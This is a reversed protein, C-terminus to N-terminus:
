ATHVLRQLFQEHFVADDNMLVVYAPDWKLAESIGRNTGGAYHLSGDGEIIVVDPFAHRIADSTEDRSGDDVIFIKLDLGSGDIRSLSRLCQLTTERRNHVPIVLAVKCPDNNM